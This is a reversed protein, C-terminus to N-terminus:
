GSKEKSATFKFYKELALKILPKTLKPNVMFSYTQNDVSLLAKKSTIVSKISDLFMIESWLNSKFNKAKSYQLENSSKGM